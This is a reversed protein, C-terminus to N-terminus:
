RRKEVVIGSVREFEGRQWVSLSERNAQRGFQFFLDIVPRESLWSFALKSVTLEFQKQQADNLFVQADLYAVVTDGSARKLFDAKEAQHATYQAFADDSLVEKITQQYLPHMTIDNAPVRGPIEGNKGVLEAAAAMFKESAQKRTIEGAEVAEGLRMELERLKVEPTNAQAEFYQQVAGKIAVTLRRSANENLDGLLDTHAVLKVEAFRKEQEQPETRGDERSLEKMLADTVLVQWVESQTQSLMGDLSIKLGYHLLNVADQSNIHLVSISTPFSENQAASILLQEINERQDTTLSFERSLLGTILRASAQRDQQQRAKISDIYDQLQAEGLYEAFVAKCEPHSLLAELLATNSNEAARDFTHVNEVQKLAADVSESVSQRLAKVVDRNLNYRASLSEGVLQILLQTRQKVVTEVRRKNVFIDRFFGGGEKSMKLPVFHDGGNVIMVPKGVREGYGKKSINILYRGAPLGAHKYNGNADTKTTFETGDEAVIKIEVDEIPNQAETTDRIQGRVTGGNLANDQAFAIGVSIGICTAFILVLGFRAM